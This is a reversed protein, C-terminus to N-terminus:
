QLENNPTMTVRQVGQALTRYMKRTRKEEMNAIELKREWDGVQKAINQVEATLYIYDMVQPRDWLWFLLEALGRLCHRPVTM